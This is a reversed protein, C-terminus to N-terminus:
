LFRQVYSRIGAARSIPRIAPPALVAVPGHADRMSACGSLGTTSGTAIFLSDRLRQHVYFETGRPLHTTHPNDEVASLLPFADDDRLKALTWSPGGKARLDFVKALGFDSLLLNGHLDFLLAMRTYANYRSSCNPEVFLALERPLQGSCQNIKEHMAGGPLYEQSADSFTLFSIYFSRAMVLITVTTLSVVLYFQSHTNVTCRLRNM